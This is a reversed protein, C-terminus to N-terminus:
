LRRWEGPKYQPVGMATLLGKVNKCFVFNDEKTFYDSLAEDRHRYFTTKTKSDLIGHESLRSAFDESAEKLLALGRVLDNLQSQSFPKVKSQWKATTDSMSDSYDSDERNVGATKAFLNDNSVLKPLSSFVPIPEEECHRM